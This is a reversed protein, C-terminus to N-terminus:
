PSHGDTISSDYIDVVEDVQDDTGDWFKKWGNIASDAIILRSAMRCALWLERDVEPCSVVTICGHGKAYGLEWLTGWAQRSDVWAFVLDTTMIAM